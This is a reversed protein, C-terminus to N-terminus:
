GLEILISLCQENVNVESDSLDFIATCDNADKNQTLCNGTEFNCYM